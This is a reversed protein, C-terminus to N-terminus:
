KIELLKGGLGAHDFSVQTSMMAALRFVSVRMVCRVNLNIRSDNESWDGVVSRGYRPRPEGKNATKDVSPRFAVEHVFKSSLAADDPGARTM